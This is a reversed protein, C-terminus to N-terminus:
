SKSSRTTSGCGITRRRSDSLTPLLLAQDRAYREILAM